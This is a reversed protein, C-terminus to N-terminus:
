IPPLPSIIIYMPTSLVQFCAQIRVVCPGLTTFILLHGPDLVVSMDTSGFIVPLTICDDHRMIDNARNYCLWITDFTVFVKIIIAM